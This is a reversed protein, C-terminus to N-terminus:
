THKLERVKHSEICSCIVSIVSKPQKGVRSWASSQANIARAIIMPTPLPSDSTVSSAVRKEVLSQPLRKGRSRGPTTTCAPPYAASCFAQAIPYSKIIPVLEGYTGSGCVDSGGVFSVADTLILQHALALFTVLPKFHIMAITCFGFYLLASYLITIILFTDTVSHIYTPLHNHTIYAFICVSAPGKM